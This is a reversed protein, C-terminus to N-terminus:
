FGQGVFVWVSGVRFWFEGLCCFSLNLFKGYGPVLNAAGQLNFSRVRLDQFGKAGASCWLVFENAVAQLM